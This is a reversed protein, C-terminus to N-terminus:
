FAVANRGKLQLLTRAEDASAIELGLGELLKRVRRVQDAHVVLQVERGGVRNMREVLLVKKGAAVLRAASYACAM